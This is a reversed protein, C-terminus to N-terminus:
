KKVTTFIKKHKKLDDLLENGQETCANKQTRCKIAKAQNRASIYEERTQEHRHKLWKRHEKNKKKTAEKVEENWWVTHRKKTGCM